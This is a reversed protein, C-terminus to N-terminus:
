LSRDRCRGIWIASSIGTEVVNGSGNGATASGPLKVLSTVVSTAWVGNVALLAEGVILQILVVTKFLRRHTFMLVLTYVTLAIFSLNLLVWGWVPIPAYARFALVIQPQVKFVSTAFLWLYVAPPILGWILYVVLVLLWGRIGVLPEADVSTM